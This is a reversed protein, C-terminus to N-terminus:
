SFISENKYLPIPISVIVSIQNLKKKIFGAILHVIVVKRNSMYNIVKERSQKKQGLNENM